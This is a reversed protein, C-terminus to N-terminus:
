EPCPLRPQPASDGISVASPPTERDRAKRLASVPQAATWRRPLRPHEALHRTHALVEALLVQNGRDNFHKDPIFLHQRDPHQCFAARTDLVDFGLETLMSGLWDQLGFSEGQLIQQYSPILVVTVPVRHRHTVAALNSFLFRLDDSLPPAPAQHVLAPRFSPNGRHRGSRVWAAWLLRSRETASGLVGPPLRPRYTLAGTRTVHISALPQPGLGLMDVPLLVIFIREPQFGHDLLLQIQAMRLMFPENKGLNFIRHDSVAARAHDALMGPAHVFSNGFMAWIPRPDAKAEPTLWPALREANEALFDDWSRYCVGFLPDPRYCGQLPSAEGMFPYLDSPPFWRLYMEGVAALVLVSLAGGALCAAQRRCILCVPFRQGSEM